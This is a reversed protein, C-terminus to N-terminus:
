GPRHDVEFADGGFPEFDLFRYSYTRTLFKWGDAERVLVDDYVALNDYFNGDNRGHERMAFRATARDDELTVVGAHTLQMFYRQIVQLKVLQAVIAGRGEARSTLPAGIEWVAGQAAWVAAFGDNDRENVADSFRAALEQIQDFLATM